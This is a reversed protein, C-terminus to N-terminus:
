QKKVQMHTEWSATLTTQYEWRKIVEGHNTTIGCYFAKAYNIFCFYIKKPIRKIKKHDLPHQCNSRQNGLKELDLKFMQCHLDIYSNGWTLLPVIEIKTDLSSLMIWGDGNYDHELSANDLITGMLETHCPTNSIHTSWVSIYQLSLSKLKM